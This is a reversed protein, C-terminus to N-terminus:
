EGLVMLASVGTGHSCECGTGSYKGILTFAGIPSLMLLSGFKLAVALVAQWVCRAHLPCVVKM